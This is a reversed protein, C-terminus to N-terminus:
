RGFVFEDEAADMSTSHEEIVEVQNDLRNIVTSRILDMALSQALQKQYYSPVHGYLILSAGVQKCQVHRLAYYSSSRLRQLVAEVVRDVLTASDHNPLGIPIVSLGRCEGATAENSSSNWSVPTSGTSTM